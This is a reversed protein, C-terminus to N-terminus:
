GSPDPRRTPGRTKLALTGTFRCAPEALPPSELGHEKMTWIAKDTAKVSDDGRHWRDLADSLEPDAEIEATTLLDTTYDEIYFREGVAAEIYPRGNSTKGVAYFRM